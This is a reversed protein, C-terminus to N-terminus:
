RGCRRRGCRSSLTSSKRRRWRRRDHRRRWRLRRLRGRRTGAGVGGCPEDAEPGANGCRHEGGREKSGPSLLAAPKFAGPRAACACRPMTPADTRLSHACRAAAHRMAHRMPVRMFKRMARRAHASSLQQPSLPATTKKEERKRKNERTKRRHRHRHRHETKSRNKVWNKYLKGGDELWMGRASRPPAM